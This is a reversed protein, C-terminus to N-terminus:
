GHHVALEWSEFGQVGSYYSPVGFVFGGTARAIEEVADKGTEEDPFPIPDALLFVFLRIQSRLLLERIERSRVHSSNDGADSILYLADGPHSSAFLKTATQLADFLATVGHIRPDGHKGNGENLWKAMSNRSQSFDFVDHVQNSFTVLAILVDDPTDELLDKVAERAIEFKKTAIQGSMSGSMDLLVIIRRPALSYSADLVTALHGDVKIRFNDKPLNRVASGNRDLVNALLSSSSQNQASQADALIGCATVLIGALLRSIRARNL